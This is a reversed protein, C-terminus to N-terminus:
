KDSEEPSNGSDRQKKAMSLCILVSSFFIFNKEKCRVGPSPVKDSEGITPCKTSSYKEAQCWWGSIQQRRQCTEGTRRLCQYSWRNETNIIRCFLNLKRYSCNVKGYQWVRRSLTFKSQRAALRGVVIGNPIIVIGIPILAGGFAALRNWKASCHNRKSYARRWVRFSSETQCFPLDM